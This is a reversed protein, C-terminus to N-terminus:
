VLESFGPPLQHLVRAQESGLIEESTVSTKEEQTERHQKSEEGQDLM